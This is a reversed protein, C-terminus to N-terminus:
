RILIKKKYNEFSVYPFVPKVTKKGIKKLLDTDRTFIKSFCEDKTNLWPHFYNDLM